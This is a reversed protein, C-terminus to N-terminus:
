AAGQGPHDVPEELNIELRHRPYSGLVRLFPAMEALHSLARGSVEDSAHGAFDIYFLYELPRGQFPRSEIKTLDIDRLAFASMARYLSGPINPLSFVISTKYERAQPDPPQDAEKNLALFRTYNEPFDELGDVLVDLGYVEAAWSSAIAAEQPEGMEKILRASGATDLEVVPELGLNVLSNECQALAQPHSHARRILDLSVGPLGLLCHSVRM